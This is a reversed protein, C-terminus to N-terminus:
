APDIREFEPKGKFSRGTNGGEKAAERVWRDSKQISAASIQWVSNWVLSIMVSFSSINPTAVTKEDWPQRAYVGKLPFAERGM